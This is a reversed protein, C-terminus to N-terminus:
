LWGGIRSAESIGEGTLGEILKPVVPIIVGLGIVDVLITIFIFVLANNQNTKM